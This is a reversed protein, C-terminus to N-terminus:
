VSSTVVYPDVVDHSRKACTTHTHSLHVVIDLEKHDKTLSEPIMHVSVLSRATLRSRNLYQFPLLSNVIVNTTSSTVPPSVDYQFRLV